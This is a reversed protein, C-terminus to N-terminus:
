GDNIIELVEKSAIKKLPELDGRQNCDLVFRLGWISWVKNLHINGNHELGFATDVFIITNIDGNLYDLLTKAIIAWKKGGTSGGWKGELSFIEYAINAMIKEGYEDALDRWLEWLVDRSCNGKSHKYLWCAIAKGHKKTVQMCATKAEETRNEPSWEWPYYRLEGGTAALMYSKLQVAMGEAYEEVIHKTEPHDISHNYLLYFNAAERIPIFHLDVGAAKALYGANSYCMREWCEVSCYPVPSDGLIYEEGCICCRVKKSACRECIPLLAGVDKARIRQPDSSEKRFDSGCYACYWSDYTASIGLDSTPLPCKLDEHHEYDQGCISCEDGYEPCETGFKELAEQEYASQQEKHYAAADTPAETLNSEWAEGFHKGKESVKYTPKNSGYHSLAEVKLLHEKFIGGTGLVMDGVNFKYTIGKEKHSKYKPILSLEKEYFWWGHKTKVSGAGNGGHGGQETDLEVLYPLPDNIIAIIIGTKGVWDKGSVVKVKDGISFKLGSKKKVTPIVKKKPPAPCTLDHHQGYTYGCASCVTSMPIEGDTGFKLMSESPPVAVVKAPSLKKTRKKPKVPNLVGDEVAKKAVEEVAIAM